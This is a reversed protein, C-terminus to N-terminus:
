AALLEETDVDLEEPQLVRIVKESAPMPTWAAGADTPGIRDGNPRVLVRCFPRSSDAPNPSTALAVHGTGTLILTGAPYDGVTRVLACVVAPDFTSGSLAKVHQLGDFPTWPRSRYARHATLADFYDAVSVIRTTTSLPLKAASKPYGSGDYAIHHQLCAAMAELLLRSLGPMRAIQKAGALPHQALVKWEEELLSDPKRLVDGPVEIKGIDHLLAVVGLDALDVRKLGLSQGMAASLVGVNVCHHLAYEAQRKLATLGILAHENRVVMDVLPQIVRRAERLNPYGTRQTRQLLRTAGSVATFYARKTKGLEEFQATQGEISPVSDSAVITSVPVLTVGTIGAWGMTAMFAKVGVPGNPVVFISLFCILDRETLGSQFVIGGLQRIRLSETLMRSVVSPIAKPPLRVGNLYFYEDVTALVVEAEEHSLETIIEVFAPIARQFAVNTVQHTRATRMMAALQVLLAVGREQIRSERDQTL